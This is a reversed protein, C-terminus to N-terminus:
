SFHEWLELHGNITSSQVNQRSCERCRHSSHSQGPLQPRHCVLGGHSPPVSNVDRLVLTSAMVDSYRNKNCSVPIEAHALCLWSYCLFDAGNKRSTGEKRTQPVQQGWFSVCVLRSDLSNGLGSLLQTFSKALHCHAALLTGRPLVQPRARCASPELHPAGRGRHFGLVLDRPILSLFRPHPNPHLTQHGCVPSNNHVIIPQRPRGVLYALYPPPEALRLPLM